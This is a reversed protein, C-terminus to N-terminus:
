PDGDLESTLTIATGPIRWSNTPTTRQDNLEKMRVLDPVVIPSLTHTFVYDLVLKLQIAAEDAMDHRVSEPFGSSDLAKVALAFLLNTDNIQERREASSWLGPQLSAQQGLEDARRGVDAMVAYFNLLTAAPSDGVVQGLVVDSWTRSIAQLEAYFPQQDIPRAVLSPPSGPARQRPQISSQAAFGAQLSVGLATLVALVFSVLRRRAQRMM